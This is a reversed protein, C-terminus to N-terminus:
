FGELLNAVLSEGFRVAIGVPLVSWLIYLGTVVALWRPKGEANRLWRIV